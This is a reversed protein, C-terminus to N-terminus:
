WKPKTGEAYGKQQPLYNEILFRLTVPAADGVIRADRPSRFIRVFAAGQFSAL